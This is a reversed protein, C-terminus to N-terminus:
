FWPAILRHVNWSGAKARSPVIGAHSQCVSPRASLRVRQQRLSLALMADRPYFGILIARGSSSGTLRCILLAITTAILQYWPYWRQCEDSGNNRETWHETKCSDLVDIVVNHTSNSRWTTMCTTASVKIVRVAYLRRLKKQYQMCFDTWQIM